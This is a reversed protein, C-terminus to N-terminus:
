LVDTFYIFLSTALSAVLVKSLPSSSFPFIKHRWKLPTIQHRWWFSTMISIRSTKLTMILKYSWLNALDRLKPDGPCLINL